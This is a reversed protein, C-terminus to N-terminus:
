RLFPAGAEARTHHPGRTLSTTNKRTSDTGATCSLLRHQGLSGNVATLSWFYSLSFSNWLETGTVRGRSFHPGWPCCRTGPGEPRARSRRAPRLSGLDASPAGARPVRSQAGLHGLYFSTWFLPAIQRLDKGTCGLEEWCIVDKECAVKLSHVAPLDM